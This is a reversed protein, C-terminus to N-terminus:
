KAPRYRAPQRSPAVMSVAPIVPCFGPPAPGTAKPVAAPPFTGQPPFTSLDSPRLRSSKAALFRSLRAGGLLRGHFDGPRLRKLPSLWDQATFWKHPRPVSSGLSPQFRTMKENAAKCFLAQERWTYSIGVCELNWAAQYQRYVASWQHSLSEHMHLFTRISMCQSDQQEISNAM